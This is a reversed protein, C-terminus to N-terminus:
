HAQYLRYHHPHDLTLGTTRATSKGGDQRHGIIFIELRTLESLHAVNAKDIGTRTTIEKDTDSKIRAKANDTGPLLHIYEDPFSSDTSRSRM